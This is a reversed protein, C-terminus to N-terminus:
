EYSAYGPTLDLNKECDANSVLAFQARYSRKRSCFGASSCQLRSSSRAAARLWRRRTPRFTQRWLSDTLPTGPDLDLLIHSTPIGAHMRELAATVEEATLISGAKAAVCDMAEQQTECAAVTIQVDQGARHWTREGLFEAEALTACAELQEPSLDQCELGLVWRNSEMHRFLHFGQPSELSPRTADEQSCCVWSLQSRFKGFIPHGTVAVHRGGDVARAADGGPLAANLAECASFSHELEDAPEVAAGAGEPEPQLLDLRDGRAADAEALM